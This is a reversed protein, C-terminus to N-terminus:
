IFLEPYKQKVTDISIDKINYLERFLSDILDATHVDYRAYEASGGYYDWESDGTTELLSEVTIYNIDQDPFVQKLVDRLEFFEEIPLPNEEQLPTPGDEDWCTGYTGGLCWRDSSIVDPLGLLEKYYYGISDMYTDKITVLTYDDWSTPNILPSNKITPISTKNRNRAIDNKISAERNLRFYVFDISFNLEKYLKTQPGTTLFLGDIILDESLSNCYTILNDLTDFSDGDVYKLKDSQSKAYTTKGAGPLGILITARYM